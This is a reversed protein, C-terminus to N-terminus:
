IKKIRAKLSQDPESILFFLVLNQGDEGTIVYEKDGPEPGDGDEM